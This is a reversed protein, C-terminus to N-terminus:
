DPKKAAELSARKTQPFSNEISVVSCLALSNLTSHRQEIKLFVAARICQSIEAVCHKTVFKQGQNTVFNAGQM